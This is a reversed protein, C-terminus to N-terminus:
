FTELLSKIIIKGSKIVKKFGEKFSRNKELLIDILNKM